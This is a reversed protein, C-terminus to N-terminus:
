EVAAQIRMHWTRKLHTGKAQNIARRKVGKKGGGLKEIQFEEFMKHVAASPRYGAREAARRMGNRIIKRTSM